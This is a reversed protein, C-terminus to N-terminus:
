KEMPFTNMIGKELFLKWIGVHDKGEYVEHTVYVGKMTLLDAYQEFGNLMIEHDLSGIGMYVQTINKLKDKSTSRLRSIMEFDHYWMSPAGIMYKSFLTPEELMAFAAFLGSFSMGFLTRQEPISKYKAEILPILEQKLFALFQPGGGTIQRTTDSNGLYVEDRPSYSPSFDRFRQEACYRATDDCKLGVLIYDAVLHHQQLSDSINKILPEALKLDLFYCIPYAKEHQYGSPLSVEAIYKGNNVLKSSIRFTDVTLQCYGHLSCVFLITILYFNRM